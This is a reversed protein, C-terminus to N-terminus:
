LHASLWPGFVGPSVGNTWTVNDSCESIGELTSGM